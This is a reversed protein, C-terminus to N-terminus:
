ADTEKAKEDRGITLSGALVVGNFLAVFIVPFFYWDGYNALTLAWGFLVCTLALRAGYLDWWEWTM